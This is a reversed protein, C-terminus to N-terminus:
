SAMLSTVLFGLIFINPTWHRHGSPLIDSLRSTKSVSVRLSYKIKRRKTNRKLGTTTRSLMWNMTGALSGPHRGTIAPLAALTIVRSSKLIEIQLVQRYGVEMDENMM